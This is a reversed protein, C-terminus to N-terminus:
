PASVKYVCEVPLELSDLDSRTVRERQRCVFETMDLIEIPWHTAYRRLLAGRLGLQIARRELRRGHPDHDPDWQVRVESNRVASRWEHEDAFSRPDMTSPVASRVMLDFAALPLRVALIREQDPKTAWGSRYMMWLFGPKIWSMRTLSFEGGFKQSALAVDAIAHRYAQYVIISTDDYCALIQRGGVPWQPEQDVWRATPLPTM